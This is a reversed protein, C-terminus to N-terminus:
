VPMYPGYDPEGDAPVYDLYTPDLVYKASPGERRITRLAGILRDVEPKTNYVGLSVRVLGPVGTHTAAKLKSMARAMEGASLGLLERVYPQACFCGNRVGIGWEYGLVAALLAHDYGDLELAFVGLRDVRLEPDRRGYLRLGDVGLLGRLCCRTMDREHAMLRERGLQEYVQAAKALALAGMVNPTGAEDKDPPEQWAVEGDGVTVVTGGGVTDPDGAQFVERPGVLVGAGFPAHMKHGSFALFDIREPDDPPGMRVTRHPVLQTADLAFWAGYRHALRAAERYPPINGTVNSGGSVSVVRVRGREEHLRASLDGLDLAGDCRRVRASVVRCGQRRWPLINSHHEMATNLVVDDPTLGLRNALKNLSHTANQTFLVCHYTLDAGVFGAVITRCREYVRTSLLSKFGTGRHISSYYDQYRVLCDSVATFPPTTASNDFNVYVTREGAWTPVVRDVGVVLTRLGDASASRDQQLLGRAVVEATQAEGPM